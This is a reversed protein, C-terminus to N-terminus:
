NPGQLDFQKLLHVAASTDETLISILLDKANINQRGNFLAQTFARNFVRELMQTKKPDQVEPLPTVEKELYQYILAKLQAPEKGLDYLIDEIEEQELLIALLHELTVYEHKYERTLQFVREVIHEIRDNQSM